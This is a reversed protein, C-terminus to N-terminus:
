SRLKDKLSPKATAVSNTADINYLLIPYAKIAQERWKVHCLILYDALQETYHPEPLATLTLCIRMLATMYGDFNPDITDVCRHCGERIKGGALYGDIYGCNFCWDPLAEDIAEHQITIWDISDKILMGSETHPVLTTIPPMDAALWELITTPWDAFAAEFFVSHSRWYYKM